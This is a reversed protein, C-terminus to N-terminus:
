RDKKEIMEGVQLTREIVVTVKLIMIMIRTRKM